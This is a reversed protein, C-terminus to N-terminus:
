LDETQEFYSEEYREWEDPAQWPAYGHRVRYAQVLGQFASIALAICCLVIAFLATGRRSSYLGWLGMLVGLAAPLLALPTVASGILSMLGLVLAAIAGGVSASRRVNVRPALPRSPPQDGVAPGNQPVDAATTM